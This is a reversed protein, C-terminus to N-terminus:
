ASVLEDVQRNGRPARPGEAPRTYVRQKRGKGHAKNFAEIVDPHIRGRAGVEMDNERAWARVDAATAVEPAAPTASAKTNKM